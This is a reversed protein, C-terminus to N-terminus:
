YGFVEELTLERVTGLKKLTEMDMDSKKGIVCYVYTRGAINKNFYATMEELTMTNLKEYVSKRIDYDIGRDELTRYNWYIRDKIIRESEIKKMASIRSEEFMGDTKEPIANMLETMAEIAAALKNNQTGIYASVYHSEDAKAPTTVKARASYALAKSERIEQFIISSLGSGFFSNFLQHYAADEPNYTSGKSILTMETQIMDYDVFYVMSKNTALEDYKAPNGVISLEEPLMHNTKIEAYVDDISSKGYYFVNHKYNTLSRILQVLEDATVAQLEETTLQDNFKNVSGYKAYNKIGNMIGWKSKKSDERSKIEDAILNILATSDPQVNKIIHEMLQQAEDFSEELGSLYMYVKWSSAKSDFEVGLNYLQKRIEENTYKDTGLYSLYNLALKVKPNTKLDEDMEIFLTFLDNTKNEVYYFPVDTMLEKTQLASKYDIFDPKLRISNMKDVENYFESKVERNIEVPTIKPKDVKFTTTDEGTKKYVVCYNNNFKENAWAVLKKKSVAAMKDIRTVYEEWDTGMIFADSMVYARLWNAEFQNLMDVKINKIVAPLLDDSFEGKKVLEVQEILLNKVEDLSQDGKPTGRLSFSTYDRMVNAYGGASLVKQKQVLNLDILGAVDNSLVTSMLEAMVADESHYGNLRYGVSVWEQMPGFVAIERPETIPDEKPHTPQTVEKKTMGGFYKRIMGMTEDPDFDGALCIAMNNPVYYTNFYEHIKEMSPNKLHEGEGITTQTGYQHKTFMIQNMAAYSKRYDNDQGRNFEEYVAELETHFLRLVLESFRESEVKMWKELETSPIDNIYATREVSTFANTGKAGLGSIMKDYENPIAFKAAEGSVSDIKAYIAKKKDPDSETRHQEYLDSIEQLLVKEKEWDLTAFHSTGKFVMHELYHALGTVDSPDNTSGTNVAIFTQVRPQDKNVSLYVKLGNDLTYIQANIPDVFASKSEDAKDGSGCTIFAVSLGILLLLKFLKM